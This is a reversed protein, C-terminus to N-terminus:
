GLKRFDWEAHDGGELAVEVMLPDQSVGFESRRWEEVLKRQERQSEAYMGGAKGDITALIRSVVDSTVGLRLDAVHHHGSRVPGPGSTRWFVLLDVSRPVTLPFIHALLHTPIATFAQGLATQRLARHTSLITSM